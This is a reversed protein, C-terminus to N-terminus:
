YPYLIVPSEMSAGPRHKALGRSRNDKNGYPPCMIGRNSTRYGCQHGPIINSSVMPCHTRHSSTAEGHTAKPHPLSLQIGQSGSWRSELMRTTSTVYTKHSSSVHKVMNAIKLMKWMQHMNKTFLTVDERNTGTVIVEM